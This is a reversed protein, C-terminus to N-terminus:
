QPESPKTNKAHYATYIQKSFICYAIESVIIAVYFAFFIYYIPLFNADNVSYILGVAYSITCGVIQVILTNIKAKRNEKKRDYLTLTLIVYTAWFLTIIVFYWLIYM